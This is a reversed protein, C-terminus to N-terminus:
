REDDVEVDEPLFFDFDSRLAHDEQESFRYFNNNGDDMRITLSELLSSNEMFSITISRIDNGNRPILTFRNDSQSVQYDSWLVDSANVLLMLPNSRMNEMSFISVQALVADFYYIDGHRTFIATEDPELTHMIFLDPRMLRLSGNSTSLVQGKGDSVEQTFAASFGELAELKAKLAQAAASLKPTGQGQILTATQPAALAANIPLLGLAVTATVTAATVVSLLLTRVGSTRVSLARVRHHNTPHISLHPLVGASASPRGM